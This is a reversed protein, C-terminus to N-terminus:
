SSLFPFYCVLNTLLQDHERVWNLSDTLIGFGKEMDWGRARLHIDICTDSLYEKQKESLDFTTAARQRAEEIMRKKDLLPLM